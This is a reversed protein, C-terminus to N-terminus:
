MRISLWLRGDNKLVMATYSYEQGFINVGRKEECTLLIGGKTSNMEADTLPKLTQNEKLQTKKM